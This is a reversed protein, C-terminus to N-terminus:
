QDKSIDVVFPAIAPRVPVIHNEVHWDAIHEIHVAEALGVPGIPNADHERLTIFSTSSGGTMDVAGNNLAEVAQASAPFPGAWTITVGLPDLAKDLSRRAKALTLDTTSKLYGIRLAVPPDAAYAAVSLCLFVGIMWCM